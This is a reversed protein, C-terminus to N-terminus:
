GRGAPRLGGGVGKVYDGGGGTRQEQGLVFTQVGQDQFQASWLRVTRDQRAAAQAGTRQPIAAPLVFGGNYDTHEGILNVRGPADAEASAAHGFLTEFTSSSM